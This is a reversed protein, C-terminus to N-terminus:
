NGALAKEVREQIRAREDKGAFLRSVSWKGEKILNIEEDTHCDGVFAPPTGIEPTGGKQIEAAAAKWDVQDLKLHEDHVLYDEDEYEAKHQEELGPMFKYWQELNWTLGEQKLVAAKAMVKDVEKIEFEGLKKAAEAEVIEAELTAVESLDPKVDNFVLAEYDKQMQEVVGPASIENKWYEWDIAEVTQSVSGAEKNKRSIEGERSQWQKVVTQPTLPTVLKQWQARAVRARAVSRMM